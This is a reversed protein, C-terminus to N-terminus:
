VGACEEGGPDLNNYIYQNLAKKDAKLRVNVRTDDFFVQLTFRRKLDRKCGNSMAPVWAQVSQQM